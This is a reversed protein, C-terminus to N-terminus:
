SPYNALLAVFGVVPSTNEVHSFFFKDFENEFSPDETVLPNDWIAVGTLETIPPILPNDPIAYAKPDFSLVTLVM